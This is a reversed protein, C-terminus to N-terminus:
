DLGRVRELRTMERLLNDLSARGPDARLEHLVAHGSEPPESTQTDDETSEDVALLADLKKRTSPSLRYLVREGLQTEFQRLASRILREVRDPTPPEIRIDRCRQYLAEKLHEPRHTSTFVQKGLWTSLAGGDAVTAERFGLEQRIQARHYKIARGQWDYHSWTEPEMDLQQAIHIVIGSPVERPHQPFRGEYQFYKLLVAFGLRTPGSKNGLLKHEQPLITWHEILEDPHWARKM